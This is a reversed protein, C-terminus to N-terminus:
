ALALLKTVMNRLDSPVEGARYMAARRYLPEVTSRAEPALSQLGLGPKARWPDVDDPGACRKTRRAGGNMGM